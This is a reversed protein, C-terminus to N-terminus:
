AVRSGEVKSVKKTKITVERGLLRLYRTLRDASTRELDGRLLKSVHPQQMDLIRGVEKQSLGRREVEKMIEMHLTTKLRLVAAEEPSFGIDEFLTDVTSVHPRCTKAAKPM